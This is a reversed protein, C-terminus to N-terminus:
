PKRCLFQAFADEHTTADLPIPTGSSGWIAEVVLGARTVSRRVEPLTAFHCAFRFEHARLPAMAWGDGHAQQSSHRRYHRHALVLRPGGGIVAEAKAALGPKALRERVDQLSPREGYSPGDLNHSSFQLVGGPALLRACEAFFRERDEHGLCDLGNLSFVILDFAGDGLAELHAADGVRLDVGPYRSRADEIMEPTIDLGLYSASGEALIATTRGGGVGLDLVRTGPALPLLSGLAQEEGADSWGTGRYALRVMASDWGSSM